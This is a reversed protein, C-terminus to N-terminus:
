WFQDPHLLEAGLIGAVGLMAWRAHQLESQRYWKLATPDAGLGLPDWGYDGALSENLYAPAAAGPFVLKRDAAAAVPLARGRAATSSRAPRASLQQGAFSTSKLMTNAM